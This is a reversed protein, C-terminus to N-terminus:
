GADGYSTLGKRLGDAMKKIGKHGAVKHRPMGLMFDDNRPPRASARVLGSDMVVVPLISEPGASCTCRMGSLRLNAIELGCDREHRRRVGHQLVHRGPLFRRGSRTAVEG